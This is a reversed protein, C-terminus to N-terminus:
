SSPKQTTSCNRSVGLYVNIAVINALAVILYILSFWFRTYDGFLTM